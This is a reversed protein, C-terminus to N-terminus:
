EQQFSGTKGKRMWYKEIEELSKGKTEPLIKWALLIAPLCFLAFLWFTGFPKITELLWPVLQGLVANAAWLSLTAIAMARGRIRTPFIESLVVWTVPGYSFAFCAIFFLIFILLLYGGTLSNFFLFGIVLHSLMAGTAGFILLKRRGLKDIKWIAILTFLVNVIGIVVQGGLADGLKFGADNLIRPGYYIIANIGSLQSLVAVSVGLILALRLGPHLFQKLPEKELTITEKIELIERKAIAGGAIKGLIQEALSEKGRITLWRPSEPIFLLLLFFIMAPLTESGFMGRWVEEYIIRNMMGAGGTTVPNSSLGLLLANIFYASLIGITIAFQYLTVMRGRIHPPSIESIYLPSVMSAVGVAIGGLFRYFILITYTPAGACGIASICFLLASLLLTKKRGFKDSLVGAVSVGAICGVLASSVFWGEWVASLGFKVKVLPITGSIVATDYGFLFGGLAAVGSVSLLFAISGTHNTSTSQRTNKNM